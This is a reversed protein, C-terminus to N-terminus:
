DGLKNKLVYSQWSGNLRRWYMDGEPSWDWVFAGSLCAEPGRLTKKYQELSIKRARAVNAKFAQLVNHQDLWELFIDFWDKEVQEEKKLAWPRIATIIRLTPAGGEKRFSCGAYRRYVEIKSAGPWYLTARQVFEDAKAMPIHAGWTKFKISWTGKKTKDMWICVPVRIKEKGNLPNNVVYYGVVSMEGCSSPEFEVQDFRYVNKLFKSIFQQKPTM